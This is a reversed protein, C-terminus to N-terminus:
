LKPLMPKYQISPMISAPHLQELLNGGLLTGATEQAPTLQVQQPIQQLVQQPISGLLKSQTPIQDFYYLIGYSIM